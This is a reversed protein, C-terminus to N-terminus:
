GVLRAKDYHWWLPTAARRCSLPEQAGFITQLPQPDKEEKEEKEEESGCAGPADLCSQPTLPSQAVSTRSGRRHVASAHTRCRRAWGKCLHVTRDTTGKPKTEAIVRGQAM